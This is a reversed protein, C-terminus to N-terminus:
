LSDEGDERLYVGSRPTTFVSGAGGLGIYKDKSDGRRKEQPASIYGRGFRDRFRMRWRGDRVKIVRPGDSKVNENNIERHGGDLVYAPPYM